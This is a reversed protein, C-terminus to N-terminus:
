KIWTDVYHDKCFRCSCSFSLNVPVVIVPSFWGLTAVPTDQFLPLKSNSFPEFISADDVDALAALPPEYLM